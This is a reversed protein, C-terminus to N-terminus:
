FRVKMTRETNGKVRVILSNRKTSSFGIGSLQDDTSTVAMKAGLAELVRRHPILENKLFENYFGNPNEPNICGKLMFFYHKNGIGQQGDWYNPSLMVMSVPVFSNTKVGWIVKSNVEVPIKPQIMFKEDKGLAVDAVLVNDGQRLAKSYRFRYVQGDFEIEARFGSRGSRFSYCNVFLRYVGPKMRQRDPYIINEVAAKGVQPNIIDVDLSGGTYRSVKNGFFIHNGNPEVCHADYDNADYHEDNWQISFRLDGEVCGGANRVNRKIDSDTLNGSYAWSFGNDWKLMSPADKNVPAILSVMNPALRNEMYVEVERAGPLVKGVFKEVDIEEVRNFQKPNTVASARMEDFVSASGTVRRAADRNCFLINNVTVDDATAMRRPLSEECGLKEVAQQAEELMKTTFIAKSRKYNAPAVISEYKRVAEDLDADGSIDTLLVGISHNRIRGIVEGAAETYKWCFLEKKEDDLMSYSKKYALFKVLPGAWEEGKYLSGASILELVTAIADESIEDLSRKFVSRTDRYKAKRTDITSDDRHVVLHRPLSLNFHEFTIVSGDEARDHSVATGVHASRSIYLDRIPHAKVEADLADMVVQYNENGADFEFISHVNLEDDIYVALGIDRLFHRCCACDHEARVRFIPNTGAPFSSQYLQWFADKDAGVEFLTLKSGSGIIQTFNDSLRKATENFNMMTNM